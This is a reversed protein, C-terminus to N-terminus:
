KKAAAANIQEQSLGGNVERAHQAAEVPHTTPNFPGTIEGQAQVRLNEGGADKEAMLENRRMQEPSVMMSEIESIVEANKPDTLLQMYEYRGKATSRDIKGLAERLMDRYAERLMTEKTAEVSLGDRGVSVTEGLHNKASGRVGLVSADTNDAMTAVAQRYQESTKYLPDAIAAHFEDASKFRVKGDADPAVGNIWDATSRGEDSKRAAIQDRLDADLAGPDRMADLFSIGQEMKAKVFADLHPRLKTM